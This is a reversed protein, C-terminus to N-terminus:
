DDTKGGVPSLNVIMQYIQEKEDTDPTSESFDKLKEAFEDILATLEEYRKKSLAFTATNAYRKDTEYFDISDKAIKLANKHFRRIKSNSVRPDTVTLPADPVTRGDMTLKLHGERLLFSVARDIRKPSAIHALIKHLAKSNKQVSKLKFHNKVYLNLWDNLIHTGVEKRRVQPLNVTELEAEASAGEVWNKFVFKEPATLDLLKAIEDIRDFTIRRENKLILSILSPSLRRLNKSFSAVSFGPEAKKRYSIMAKMFKAPDDFNSILPRELQSDVFKNYLINELLIM